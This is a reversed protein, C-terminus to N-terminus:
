ICTTEVFQCVFFSIDKFDSKTKFCGDVQAASTASDLSTAM